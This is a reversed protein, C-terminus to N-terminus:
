AINLSAIQQLGQAMSTSDTLFLLEEESFKVVDAMAVAKMVVAQIESQDQWVEDRLNPDFSIFGGAAKARKIAEFTSSRSPENALSISC